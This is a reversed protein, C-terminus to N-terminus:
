SPLNLRTLVSSAQMVVVSMAIVPLAILWKLIRYYSMHFSVSFSDTYKKGFKDTMSVEVTGTTRSRPCPIELTYVGPADFTNSVGVVPNKGTNMDDIGVGKLKMTVTYPANLGKLKAALDASNALLKDKIEFSLSVKKGSIDRPARSEPVFAVSETDVKTGFGNGSHVQAPWTKLPDYKARTKFCYVNGNMTSVLLDMLGDGNLDEFLVMSYSTEGIDVVDACGTSGDVLYLFGDFSMTVLHLSSGPREDIKALLVSSMIMANTQHSLVIAGTAGDLM